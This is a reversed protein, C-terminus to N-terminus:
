EGAGAPAAAPPPAVAPTPVTTAPPANTAPAGANAPPALRKEIAAAADLQKSSGFRTRFETLTARAADTQGDDAQMSALRLLATEGEFGAGAAAIDKYLAKVKDREGAADMAHALATQATFHLIGPAEVAAAQELAARAAEPKGARRWAEAAKLWAEVGAAGTADRAIEEYKGAGTAIDEMRGPVAADDVPMEGFPTSETSPPMLYDIKGIRGYVEEAQSGRWSQVVSFAFTVVLLVLIAGLVHKWYGLVLDSAAMQMKFIADTEQPPASEASRPETPEAM